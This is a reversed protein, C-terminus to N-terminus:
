VGIIKFFYKNNKLCKKIKNKKFLFGLIRNLKSLAYENDIDVWDKFLVIKNGFNKHDCIIFFENEFYRKTINDM